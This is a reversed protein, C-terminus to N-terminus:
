AAAKTPWDQRLREPPPFLVVNASVVDSAESSPQGVPEQRVPPGDQPAVDATECSFSLENSVGRSAEAEAVDLPECQGNTLSSLPGAQLAALGEGNVLERNSQLKFPVSRTGLPCSNAVDPCSNAVHGTSTNAVNGLRARGAKRGKKARSLAQSPSPQGMREWHRRSWGFALWPKTQSKSKARPTADDEEQRRRRERAAKAKLRDRRMQASTCGVARITKFKLHKRVDATLDLIRGAQAAALKSPKSVRGTAYDFSMAEFYDRGGKSLYYTPCWLAAFAAIDGPGPEGYRNPAPNCRAIIPLAVRFVREELACELGTGLGNPHEFTLMGPQERWYAVLRKLEKLRYLAIPPEPSSPRKGDPSNEPKSATQGGSETKRGRRPGSGPPATEKDSRLEHKVREAYFLM